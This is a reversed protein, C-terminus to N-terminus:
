VVEPPDHPAPAALRTTSFPPTDPTNSIHLVVAMSGIVVVVGVAVLLASRKANPELVPPPFAKARSAAALRSGVALAERTPQRPARATSRSKSGKRPQPPPPSPEEDVLTFDHVERRAQPAPAPAPAVHRVARVTVEVPSPPVALEPQAMEEVGDLEEE